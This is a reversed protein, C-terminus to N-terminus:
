LLLGVADYVSAMTKEALTAAKAANEKMITDIYASDSQLKNYENQIKELDDKVVQSVADKFFGYNKGEFDKVSDAISKNTISAYITLLNSVGPKNEQDFYVHAESDTVARKIKKVIVDPTDALFITDNLDENSKSMKKTPTQLGMIKAGTKPTSIDPITFIDGYLANFRAAIERTLEIHQRQDEGVPVLDANFLLIDAAMLTPYTFLGVNINTAHKQSKEKFQTMRNLEGMYAYCNLIWALQTHASVQSQAYIVSKEPSIGTAIYLAIINKTNQMLEKPDIRVTIAHMDVVCFVSNYDDQLTSWNKLAGLYNGITLIGSPQIGSFITKKL